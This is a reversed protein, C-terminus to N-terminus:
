FQPLLEAHAKLLEDLLNPASKYDRVLPDGILAQL